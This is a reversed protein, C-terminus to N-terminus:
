PIESIFNACKENDYCVCKRKTTSVAEFRVCHEADYARQEEAQKNDNRLVLFVTLFVASILAIVGLIPYIVESDKVQVRM